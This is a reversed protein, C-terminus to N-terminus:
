QLEIVVGAPPFFFDENNLIGEVRSFGDSVYIISFSTRALPLAIEM